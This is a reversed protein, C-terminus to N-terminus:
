FWSLYELNMQFGLWSPASGALLETAADFRSLSEEKRSLGSHLSLAMFTKSANESRSALIGIARGSIADASTKLGVCIMIVPVDSYRSSSRSFSITPSFCSTFGETM